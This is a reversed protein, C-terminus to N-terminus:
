EIPPADLPPAPVPVAQAEPAVAAREFPLKQEIEEMTLVRAESKSQWLNLRYIKDYGAAKLVPYAQITMAVMRTPMLSFDCMVAVPTKKDPIAEALTKETLETLPINIAGKMHHAAYRQPSRVDLVVVEGGNQLDLLGQLDLERKGADNLSEQVEKVTLPQGSEVALGDARTPMPIYIISILLISLILKNM